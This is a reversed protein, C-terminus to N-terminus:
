WPEIDQLISRVGPVQLGVNHATRTTSQLGHCVMCASSGVYTADASPRGSVRIDLRMGILSSTDFASRAYDGGPLHLPDDAAPFWVVFHSGEPLTQFRYVGDSGVDAQEYDDGRVDILDEIPEDTPDAATQTPSLFLDIPTEALLAVDAASVLYVRGGPLTTGNPEGIHGVLGFIERQVDMVPPTSPEGPVGQPGQPGEPGVDGACSALVLATPLWCSRAGLTLGRM